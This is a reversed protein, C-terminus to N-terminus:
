REAITKRMTHHCPECIGHTLSPMPSQEFLQLRTVAEEVETWAEGVCVKECWSCVRLWDAFRAASPELLVPIKRDEEWLTRTVFEAAGGERLDVEMELLRRCNPSDCRLSFRVSRGDRIRKMIQRYLQKTTPDSIFSWLSRNLVQDAKLHAGGNAAAFQDWEENVFVILDQNNVRYIIRGTNTLV